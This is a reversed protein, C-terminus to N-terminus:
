APVRATCLYLFLHLASAAAYLRGLAAQGAAGLLAPGERSGQGWRWGKPACKVEDRGQQEEPLASSSGKGQGMRSTHIWHGSMEVTDQSIGLSPNVMALLPRHQGIAPHVEGAWGPMGKLALGLSILCNGCGHHAPKDM